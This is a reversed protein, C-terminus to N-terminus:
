EERRPGTLEVREAILEAFVRYQRRGIRLGVTLCVPCELLSALLWVHQPFPAKEGLFPLWTVRQKAHPPLRDGLIAVMEGRDIYGKLAFIAEPDDPKLEIVRVNANPHLANMVANIKQAHSRHMVVHITLGEALSFVRLADFSGVHAGLLLVGKGDQRQLYQRGDEYFDFKELRGQWLWVRELLTLAFHLQHVYCKWLSPPAIVGPYAHHLRQLYAYSARRASRGTLFFYGVIPLLTLVAVGYGVTNLLFLVLRMGCRSGREPIKAWLVANM